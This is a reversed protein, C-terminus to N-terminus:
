GPLRIELSSGAQRVEYARLNGHTRGHLLTGKLDYEAHNLSTCQVTRHRRNYSCQAGNHTCSRDLAAFDHAGTRVVILNLKHGSDILAAASGPRALEPAAKLDIIARNGDFRVSAPNLPPTTCCLPAVGLLSFSGQLIQRRQYQM